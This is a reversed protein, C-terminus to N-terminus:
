KRQATDLLWCPLQCEQSSRWPCSTALLSSFPEVEQRVYSHILCRAADADYINHSGDFCGICDRCNGVWSDDDLCDIGHNDKVCHCPSLSCCTKHCSPHNCSHDSWSFSHCHCAYHGTRKTLCPFNTRFFSNNKNLIEKTSKNEVKSKSSCCSSHWGGHPEFHGCALHAGWAHNSTSRWSQCRSRCVYGDGQCSRYQKQWSRRELQLSIFACGSIPLQALLSNIHGMTHRQELYLVM